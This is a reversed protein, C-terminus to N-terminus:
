QVKQEHQCLAQCIQGLCGIYPQGIGVYQMYRIDVMIPVYRYKRLAFLFYIHKTRMGRYFPKTKWVQLIGSFARSHSITEQQYISLKLVNCQVLYMKYCYKETHVNVNACVSWLVSQNSFYICMWLLFVSINVFGSQINSIMTKVFISM